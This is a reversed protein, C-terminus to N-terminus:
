EALILLSPLARCSSRSAPPARRRTRGPSCPLPCRGRRLDKRSPSRSPGPSAPVGGRRTTQGSARRAGRGTGPAPPQAARARGRRSCPAVPPRPRALLEAEDGSIRSRSAHRGDYDVVGEAELHSYILCHALDPGGQHSGVLIGRAEAIVWLVVVDGSM